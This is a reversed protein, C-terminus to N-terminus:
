EHSERFPEVSEWLERSVDVSPPSDEVADWVRRWEVAAEILELIAPGDESFALHMYWVDSPSPDDPLPRTQRVCERLREMDVSM